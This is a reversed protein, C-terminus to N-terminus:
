RQSGQPGKPFVPRVIELYESADADLTILQGSGGDTRTWSGNKQRWGEQYFEMPKGLRAVALLKIAKIIPPRYVLKAPKLKDRSIPKRQKQQVSSYIEKAGIKKIGSPSFEIIRVARREDTTSRTYGVVSLESLFNGNIDSLQRIYIDGRYPYVYHAKPTFKTDNDSISLVLIGQYRQKMKISYATYLYARFETERSIFFGEAVDLLEFNKDSDEVTATDGTEFLVENDFVARRVADVEINRLEEVTPQLDPKKPVAVTGDAILPKREQGFNINM